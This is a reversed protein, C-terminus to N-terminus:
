DIPYAKADACEILRANYADGDIRGALWEAKAYHEAAEAYRDIRGRHNAPTRRAEATLNRALTVLERLKAFRTM